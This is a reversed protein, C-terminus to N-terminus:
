TMKGGRGLGRGGPSLSGRKVKALAEISQLIRLAQDELIFNSNESHRSQM